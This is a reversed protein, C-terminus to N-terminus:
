ILFLEGLDDDTPYIDYLEESEFECGEYSCFKDTTKYTSAGSAEKVLKKLQDFTITKKM